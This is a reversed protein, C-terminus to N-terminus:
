SKDSVQLIVLVIRPSQGSQDTCPLPWFRVYQYEQLACMGYLDQETANLTGSVSMSWGGGSGRNITSM